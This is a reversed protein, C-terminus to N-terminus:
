NIDLYFMLHWISNIHEKKKKEQFWSIGNFEMLPILNRINLVSFFKPSSELLGTTLIGHKWQWSCLNLRQDPFACTRKVTLFLIGIPNHLKVGALLSHIDFYMLYALINCLSVNDEIVNDDVVKLQLQQFYKRKRKEVRGWLYKSFKREVKQIKQIVKQNVKGQRKNGREVAGSNVEHM